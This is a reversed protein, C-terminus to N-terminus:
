KIMSPGLAMAPLQPYVIPHLDRNLARKTLATRRHRALAISPQGSTSANSVINAQLHNFVPYVGQFGRFLRKRRVVLLQLFAQFARGHYRRRTIIPPSYASIPQQTHRIRNGATLRIHNQELPHFNDCSTSM